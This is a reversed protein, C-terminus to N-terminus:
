ILHHLIVKRDRIEAENRTLGWIFMECDPADCVLKVRLEARPVHELYTGGSPASTERGDLDWFRGYVFPVRDPPQRGTMRWAGERWWLAERRELVVSGYTIEASELIEGTNARFLPVNSNENLDADVRDAPRSDFRTYRGLALQSKPRFAFVIGCLENTFPLIEAHSQRGALDVVIPKRTIMSLKWTPNLAPISGGGIMAPERGILYHRDRTSVDSIEYLMEAKVIGGTAATTGVGAGAGMMLYAVRPKVRSEQRASELAVLPIGRSVGGRFWFPLDIVIRLESGPINPIVIPGGAINYDLFDRAVNEDQDRELDHAIAIWEGDVRDVIDGDSRWLVERVVASSIPPTVTVGRIELVLYCAHLIDGTHPFTFRIGEATIESPSMPEWRVSWPPHALIRSFGGASKRSIGQTMIGAQPGEAALRM